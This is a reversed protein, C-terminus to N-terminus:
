VEQLADLSPEVAVSGLSRENNDMGDIMNNNYTGSQGNATFGMSPRSDTPDGGGGGASMGPKFGILSYYNRGNTPMDSVENASIEASIDSSDTQLEAAASAEVQVTEVQSGVDLKANVRVRQGATLELNNVTFNKFGKAEVTVKFTGIQVHSFLFDGVKDSNASSAIGTGTNRVTVKADPVVAGTSDTVTGLIDATALQARVLGPTLLVFLALLASAAAFFRFVSAGRFVHCGTKRAIMQM